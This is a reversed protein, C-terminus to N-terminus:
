NQLQQSEPPLFAVSIELPPTTKNRLWMFRMTNVPGLKPFRAKMEAVPIQYKETPDWVFIAGHQKLKEEDIWPSLKKDAEIYVRPHDKSYFAVNGALWRPGVVFSLKSHYTDTWEETLVDAINEGPFNASSPKEARILAACYSFVTAAFLTFLIIIFRQFRARTIVPGAFALLILPWFTLLPQGWGARLKIGTFASLLITLLFPGLGVILLFTRDYQSPKPIESIVNENKVKGIFLTLFLVLAPFFVIFQQWAFIAPYYFHNHWNPASSVRGVAYTITIFDHQFLWITHPTIIALFLLLGLYLPLSKFQARTQRYCLMFILMPLFLMVAYYKTMMSFAAFVGTLLWNKLHHERLARYFFLTTLSWFGLELTNDNFDIAHLNFYQIGELLLVAIFAYIPPLIKKGIKWVAWFCLAVSLQSFLYIVWGSKGGIWVATATLWANMFPNKDYGWELQQGWTTGELADMPLSFRVWTPALTWVLVHLLIFAYMWKNLM